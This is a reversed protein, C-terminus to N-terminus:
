EEYIMKRTMGGDIVINAGNIFDNGDVTLYLCARAIDEAKGVRASFHQKHDVSRLGSYDDIEIWGPSICNVQIKCDSLSAALAHTLSVIGGKSAAYAESNAESMSARTSAINVISGGDNEKMLKAAEKSCLFVSRLNTDIIDDWEEVQLEFISKWKSIGANNILIDISGYIKVTKDMLEKVDSEVRIDTHIFVADGGSTVILEETQKGSLRDIEGIVVKAGKLAYAEAVTRGIGSGAGTVVVVKDKYDM